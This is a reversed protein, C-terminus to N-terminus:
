AAGKDKCLYRWGVAKGDQVIRDRQDYNIVQWNGDDATIWVTGPSCSGAAGRGIYNTLGTDVLDGRTHQHAVVVGDVIATGDDYIEAAVNMEAPPCGAAFGLALACFGVVVAFVLMIINM